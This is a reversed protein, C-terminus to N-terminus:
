EALNFSEAAVWRLRPLLGKEAVTATILPTISVFQTATFRDVFGAITATSTFLCIAFSTSTYSSVSLSTPM